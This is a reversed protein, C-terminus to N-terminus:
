LGDILPKLKAFVEERRAESVEELTVSDHPLVLGEVTKQVCISTLGSVLKDLLEVQSRKAERIPVVKDLLEQLAQEDIM